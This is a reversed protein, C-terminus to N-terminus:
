YGRDRSAVNILPGGELWNRVNQRFLTGVVELYDPALGAVHPTVVSGPHSWLPDDPPLPEAAFVDSAVLDLHGSDLAALLAKEDVVGGRSGNVLVAGRKMAALEPEAIMGETQPTLPVTLVVYDSDALVEHLVDPGVATVGDVEALQGFRLTEAPRPERRVALVRMGLARCLRAIQRGIRGYGVIGVTSRRLDRPMLSTWREERSPWRRAAALQQTERLRHAHALIMMLAWEAFPAPGVGGLTTIVVDTAWLPSSRVHDIGSTDLQVWRLAPAEARGPLVDSTYMVEARALVAPPVEDDVGLVPHHHVVVREDVARLGAVFSAPFDLTVLVQLAAPGRGATM